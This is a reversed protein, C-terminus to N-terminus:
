KDRLRQFTRRAESDGCVLWSLTGDRPTWWGCMGKFRLSHRTSRSHLPYERVTM